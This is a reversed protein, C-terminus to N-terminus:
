ARSEVGIKLGNIGAATWPEGTNPDVLLLKKMNVADSSLAMDDGTVVTAGSIAYVRANGSGSPVRGAGIVLVAGLAAPTFPLNEVAFDHKGSNTNDTIYDGFDGVGDADKNVCEWPNGSSASWDANDGAGNPWFVYNGFTGPWDDAIAIDDIHYAGATGTGGNQSIGLGNIVGSGGNRTDIGTISAIQIGDIKLAVEGETDHVKVYMEFVATQNAGFSYELADGITTGSPYANSPSVGRRFYLATGIFVLSMHASAGELFNMCFAGSPVSICKLAFRAYCTDSSVGRSITHYAASTTTLLSYVGTRAWTSSRSLRAANSRSVEGWINPMDATILRQIAM